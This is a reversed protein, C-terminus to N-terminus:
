LVAPKRCLGRRLVEPMHGRRFFGPLNTLLSKRPQKSFEVFHGVFHAIFHKCAAGRAGLFNGFHLSAVRGGGSELQLPM